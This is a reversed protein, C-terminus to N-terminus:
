YNYRLYDTIMPFEEPNAGNLILFERDFELIENFKALSIDIGELAKRYYEMAKTKNHLCFEVHGANIYDHSQADIQLINSMYNHAMEIKGLVFCCWGIPRMVKKNDPALFEVRFYHELAEEYRKLDLYCNGIMTHLYVDDPAQKLATTCWELAEDDLKLKRLCFIIKKVSWLRNSEFIESKKYYELAKRYNGSLQYSYALKEIVDQQPNELGALFELLHIAEEFHEKEFLFQAATKLVEPAPELMNSLETGAIDWSLNFIDVFDNRFPHLKYFRYLDQIYQTFIYIDKEPKNLIADEEKIEHLNEAEMIFLSMINRGQELPLHNINFCFSYKDSNCMYFSEEMGALFTEKVQPHESVANLVTENSRYFPRFWNSLERFFDFNKLMAFTGMFLDLGEMQMESMKQIKDLLDPSDEFIKEWDPNKDEILDDTLLHDLDLRERIKSEFKQVDPLIEEKFNRTIKETERAKLIQILIHRVQSYFEQDDRYKEIRDRIVPYLQVRNHYFYIAIVLGTLARQWVQEEGNDYFDFLILFKEKDFCTLLSLTLASIALCKDHWPLDSSSKIAHMLRIDAEAYKDTLWILQFIRPSIRPLEAENIEGVVDNEHLLRALEKDFHLSDINRAAEELAIEKKDEMQAKISYIHMGTNHLAKQQVLDLLELISVRLSQYIRDRQPDPVGRFTYELLMLYTKDLNEFQLTFDAVHIGEMLISLKALAEKLRNKIVLDNIDNSLNEIEKKSLM